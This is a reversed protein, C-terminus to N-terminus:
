RWEVGEPCELSRRAAFAERARSFLQADGLSGDAMLDFQQLGREADLEKITLVLPQNDSAGAAFVEVYHAVREVPDGRAGLADHLTLVGANQGDAYRRIKRSFPQDIPEAPKGFGMGADIQPDGCRHMMDVENTFLDVNRDPM